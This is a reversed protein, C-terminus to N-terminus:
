QRSFVFGATCVALMVFGWGWLTDTDIKNPNRGFVPGMKMGILM